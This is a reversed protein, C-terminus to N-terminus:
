ASSSSKGTRFQKEEGRWLRGINEHHRTIILGAILIGAILVPQPYAFFYILVPTLATAVISALSVIRNVAFVLVFGILATLIAIPALGLFVGLGTAVGKGGAFRLFIPFLHGLTAMVAVCAPIVVDDGLGRVVLIPLLGKLVDGILTLIGATKGATRAVNTAGINGSGAEQVPIGQRKAILVGTPISGCLYATIGALTLISVDIESAMTAWAPSSM